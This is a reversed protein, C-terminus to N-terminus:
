RLKKLCVLAFLISFLIMIGGVIGWIIIVEDNSSPLPLKRDPRVLSDPIEIDIANIKDWLEDSEENRRNRVAGLYYRLFKTGTRTKM